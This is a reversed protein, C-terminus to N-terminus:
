KFVGRLKLSWNSVKDQEDFWYEEILPIIEYEIIDELDDEVNDPNLNCFYSHGIKFGKGLSEDSEIDKNLLKITDIVKNFLQNDLNSQYKIFGDNDFAPEINVFSFRRRLAYDMMALSRDATNMTGILYINSPISFKEDSYLLQVYVNDRKDAEILLFLEGFIKSLNGRNIEDIIFFYKNDKDQEARKCFNYFSGNRREFLGQEAPRYGMIFDEYSYSQHFQVVEVRDKDAVGMISYALRKAMFSKGVGPAGQLVINKKRELLNVIHNYQISNIYVENLFNAETYEPIDKKVEVIEETVEFMKELKQVYESYATIDTLTKQVAQGPHSWNGRHTWKVKRVHKHTKRNKDYYYDSEVIGRGIVEYLGKKAYIIDGDKMDNVFQYLCLSINSYSKDNEYQEHLKDTIQERSLNSLDGIEDWGIGMIEQDYFEDFMYAKEGPSYIWYHTGRIELKEVQSQAEQRERENDAESVNYAQNSLEMNSDITDSTAIYAKIRNRIAVYEKGSPVKSSNGAAHLKKLDSSFSPDFYEPLGMYWRVRSDLSNYFKPNMWYLAMTLNWRICSQDKIKDYRKIFEDELSNDNVYNYAVEFFDWINDIDDNKRFEKFGFFATKLNNVVPISDLDTPINGGVNFEENFSKIIAIRREFTLQRNFFAYITFPDIDTPEGSEITPMYLNIKKFAANLKNLLQNRDNKFPLLKGGFKTYFDVWTYSM